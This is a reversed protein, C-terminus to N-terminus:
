GYIKVVYPWPSIITEQSFFFTEFPLVTIIRILGISTSWSSSTSGQKILLCAYPTGIDIPLMLGGGWYFQPFFFASM